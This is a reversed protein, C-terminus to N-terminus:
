DIRRDIRTLIRCLDKAALEKIAFPVHGRPDYHMVQTMDLRGPLPSERCIIGSGYQIGRILSPFEPCCPLQISHFVRLWTRLGTEASQFTFSGQLMCFDHKKVIDDLASKGVIWQIQIMADPATSITYLNVADVFGGGIRSVVEKGEETTDMRYMVVVEDLAGVLNLHACNLSAEAPSYPDKGRFIELEAEDAIRKWRYRPNTTDAKELLVCGCLVILRFQKPWAYSIKPM